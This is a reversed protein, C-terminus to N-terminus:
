PSKGAGKPGLLAFVSEEPILLGIGGLVTKDGYAQCYGPVM